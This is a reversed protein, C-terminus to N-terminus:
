ILLSHPRHISSEGGPLITVQPLPVGVPYTVASSVLTLQLSLVDFSDTAATSLDTNPHYAYM